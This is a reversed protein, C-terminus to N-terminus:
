VIYCLCEAFSGQLASSRKHNSCSPIDTVAYEVQSNLHKAVDIFVCHERIFWPLSM